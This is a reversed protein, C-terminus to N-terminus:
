NSPATRPMETALVPMPPTDKCHQQKHANPLFFPHFSHVSLPPNTLHDYVGETPNVENGLTFTQELVEHLLDTSPCLSERFKLFFIQKGTPGCPFQPWLGIMHLMTSHSCSSETLYGPKEGCMPEVRREGKYWGWRMDKGRSKNLGLYLFSAVM